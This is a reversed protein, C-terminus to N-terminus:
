IEIKQICSYEVKGPYLIKFSIKPVIRVICSGGTFTQYNEKGIRNCAIFYINRDEKEAQKRIPVLRNIWTTASIQAISADNFLSSPEEFATILVILQAKHYHQFEAFDMSEYDFVGYNLIDNGIGLGIRIWQSIRKFQIDVFDYGAGATFFKDSTQNLKCKRYNKYPIGEDSVILMSNYYKYNDFEAYGAIVFCGFKQSIEKCWKFLDGYGFTISYNILDEKSYFIGGTFALEGLVILDIEDEPTYKELISNYNDISKAANRLQAKSQLMLVNLSKKIDSPGQEDQQQSISMM